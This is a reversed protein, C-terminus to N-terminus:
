FLGPVLRATRRSYTAYDEGLAQLLAHEEVPIRVLFAILPGVFMVALSVWDGQALGIGSLGVLAGTYSPHRM